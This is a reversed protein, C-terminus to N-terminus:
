ASFFTGELQKVTKTYARICFCFQLRERNRVNKEEMLLSKLTEISELIELKFVRSM